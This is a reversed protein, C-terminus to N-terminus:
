AFELIGKVFGVAIAIMGFVMTLLKIVFHSDEDPYYKDQMLQVEAMQGPTILHQSQMITIRENTSLEHDHAFRTINDLYGVIQADKDKYFKDSAGWDYFSLYIFVSMLMGGIILIAIGVARGDQSTQYTDM